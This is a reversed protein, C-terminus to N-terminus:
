LGVQAVTGWGDRFEWDMFEDHVKTQYKRLWAYARDDGDKHRRHQIQGVVVSPHIHHRAAFALVDKESIYRGKRNIFSTLKDQPILFEAAAEDARKEAEPLDAYSRDPDFVDVHSYGSEKGDGQLVHEIEHRFVFCANDPRDLRFSLGIVPQDDLWTCVGDIKSGSLPEVFVTRVGCELLLHPIVHFDDRDFMHARIEPLKEVLRERNYKPCTISQAIVRIRHLWVLQEPLIEAYSSKKAAHPLHNGSFYPIEEVTNTNFFRMMQLDLLDAETEEIWGRRIMERVPFSSLWNARIRIGPEPEAAHQLDYMTQLNTFFQPSVDFAAGFLQAWRTTIKSRGSLVKNLEQVTTGVIFALDSQDWGRAELEDKIFVGPLDVHIDTSHTM